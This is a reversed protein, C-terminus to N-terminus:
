KLCDKMADRGLEMIVEFTAAGFLISVICLTLLCFVTLAFWNASIVAILALVGLRM